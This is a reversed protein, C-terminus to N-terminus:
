GTIRDPQWDIRWCDQGVSTLDAALGVQPVCALREGLWLLPANMRQWVPVGLTQYWHKLDREPRNGALRLREGGARARAVLPEVALRAAAIGREARTFRFEGSWGAPRWASEGAWRELRVEPRHAPPAPVFALIGRHRMFCGGAHHVAPQANDRDCSAQRWIEALRAESPAPVGLEEFWARLVNARRAGSLAALAAISVGEGARVGDLDAAGIERALDLAAQVHRTSRGIAAVAGPFRAELIPLLEHRIANRRFRLCANSEDDVHVIGAVRAYEEVCAGPIDLLPRWRAAAAGAAPTWRAMAALGPLGAGRMLQLLVTEAQDHAHHALALVPVGREACWADLAAYRAARAEAELSTRPAHAVEVRRVECEVGVAQAARRAHAAWADAQPSLGHHVHCALLEYNFRSRLAALAHLLVSSDRGGSFALGIRAPKWSAFRQALDTAVAQLVDARPDPPAPKRSHGM